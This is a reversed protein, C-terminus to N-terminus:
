IPVVRLHLRWHETTKLFCIYTFLSKGTTYPLKKGASKAGGTPIDPRDHFCPPMRVPGALMRVPGSHSKPAPGSYRSHIHHSHKPAPGSYRSHIHHSHLVLGSCRFHIRLLYANQPFSPFVFSRDLLM